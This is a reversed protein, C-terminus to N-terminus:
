RCFVWEADIYFLNLFNVFAKDAHFTKNALKNKQRGVSDPQVKQGTMKRDFFTNPADMDVM